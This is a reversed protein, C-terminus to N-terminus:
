LKRELDFQEKIEKNTTGTIEGSQKFLLVLVLCRIKM